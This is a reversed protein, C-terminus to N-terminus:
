CFLLGHMLCCALLRFLWRSSEGPYMFSIYVVNVYSPLTALRHSAATSKWPDSWSQLVPLVHLVPPRPCHTAPMSHCCATPDAPCCSFSCLCVDNAQQDHHLSMLSLLLLLLSLSHSSALLCLYRLGWSSSLLYLGQVGHLLCPCDGRLIWRLPLAAWSPQTASAPKAAPQTAAPCRAAVASAIAAATPQASATCV